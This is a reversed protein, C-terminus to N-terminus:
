PEYEPATGLSFIVQHFIAGSVGFNMTASLSADSVWTVNIESDYVAQWDAGGPTSPLVGTLAASSSLSTFSLVAACLSGILHSNKIASSRLKM